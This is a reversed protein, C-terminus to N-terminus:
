ISLDDLLACALGMLPEDCLHKYAAVGRLAFRIQESKM